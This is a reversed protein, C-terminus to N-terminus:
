STGLDSSFASNCSSHSTLRSLHFTIPSLVTDRFNSHCRQTHDRDKRLITNLSNPVFQGTLEDMQTQEHGDTTSDPGSRDM